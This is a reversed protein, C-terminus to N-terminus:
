YATSGSKKIKTLSTSTYYYRKTIKNQMGQYRIINCMKKPKNVM